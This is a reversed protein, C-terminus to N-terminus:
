YCNGSIYEEGDSEGTVVYASGMAIKKNEKEQKHAAEVDAKNKLDIVSWYKDLEGSTKIHKLLIQIANRVENNLIKM